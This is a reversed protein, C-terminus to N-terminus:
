WARYSRDPRHFTADDIWGGAVLARRHTEFTRGCFGVSRIAERLSCRLPGGKRNLSAALALVMLAGSPLELAREPLRAYKCGLKNVPTIPPPLMM